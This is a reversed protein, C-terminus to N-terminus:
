RGREVWNVAADVTPAVPVGAPPAPRTVLVVPLRLLRAAVLKASTQGGGSDRSVLVQIDNRRLLDLEGDVTYPGRDRLVRLRSPVPPGPPEVCRALFTLDVGAFAAVGQRGVSLFVREGLGPLASAAAELSPVLRWDDGPGPRWGPRRLVLLPLDVAACATVATATIRAAFPHTADIVLDVREARLWDTLGEPGGFGGVRLEGAPRLPDSTRGALASVVRLGPRTALADALRRAEGTGGLVLVTVRPSPRGPRGQWERTV